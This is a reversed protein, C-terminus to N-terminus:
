DRCVRLPGAARAPNVSSSQVCARDLKRLAEASRGPARSKRAASARFRGLLLAAIADMVQSWETCVKWRRRRRWVADSGSSRRRRGRPRDRDAGDAQLQPGRSDASEASEAAAGEEPIVQRGSRKKKDGARTEASMPTVCNEDGKM